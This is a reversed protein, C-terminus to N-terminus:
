KKTAPFHRQPTTHPSLSISARIIADIFQYISLRGASSLNSLPTSIQLQKGILRLFQWIIGDSIIGYTTDVVRKPKELRMRQQQIGVMYTIAQPLGDAGGANRLRRKAEMIVSISEFTKPTSPIVPDYGLVYDTIGTIIEKRM